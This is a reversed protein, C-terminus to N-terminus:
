NKELREQITDGLLEIVTKEVKDWAKESKRMILRAAYLKDNDIELAKFIREQGELKHKHVGDIGTHHEQCLPVQLGYKICKQKNSPQIENKKKKKSGGGGQYFIEHYINTPQQCILCKYM